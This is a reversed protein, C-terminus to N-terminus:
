QDVKVHSNPKDYVMLGLIDNCVLVSEVVCKSTAGFIGCICAWLVKGTFPRAHMAYTGKCSRIYIFKAAVQANIVGGIM